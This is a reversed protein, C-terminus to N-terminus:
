SWMAALVVVTITAIIATGIVIDDGSYVVETLGVTDPSQQSFHVIDFWDLTFNCNIVLTKDARGM